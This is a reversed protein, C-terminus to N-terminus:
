AENIARAILAEARSAVEDLRGQRVLDLADSYVLAEYIAQRRSQDPVAAALRPRLSGLFALWEGYEPGFQAQLEERIRRALMPSQGGTWVAVTLSDQRVVAPVTFSCLEPRDVVNVPTLRSRAELSVFRNAAEDDSAAIVLMFGAADGPRYARPLWRVAGADAQAVLVPALDPAIVTVRAGAELLSQVKREAVAGGGVVLCEQGGVELGVPYLGM